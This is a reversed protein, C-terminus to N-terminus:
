IITMAVLAYLADVQPVNCGDYATWTPYPTGDTINSIVLQADIITDDIDKSAM